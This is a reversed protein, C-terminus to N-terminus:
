ALEPRISTEDCRPVHSRGSRCRAFAPPRGPPPVAALPAPNEAFNRAESTLASGAHDRHRATTSVDKVSQFFFETSLCPIGLALAALYKPTSCYRDSLLFIEDIDAFADTAFRVVPPANADKAARVEFLDEWEIQTAGYEEVKPQGRGEKLREAKTVIFATRSFILTSSDQIELGRALVPQPAKCLKPSEGRKASSSDFANFEAATPRRADFQAGCYGAVFLSKLPLRHREGDHDEVTIIDAPELPREEAGDRDQGENDDTQGRTREVEVVILDRDLDTLGDREKGYYRVRDGQALQCYRLEAAGLKGTNGDDFKVSFSGASAAHITGSYFCQDDRWLGFVRKFPATDPLRRINPKVDVSADRGASEARAPVSRRRSSGAHPAEEADPSAPRRAKASGTTSRRKPEAKAKGKKAPAAIEKTPVSGRTSGRRAPSAKKPSSAAGRSRAPSPPPIDLEFTTTSRAKRKKKPAPLAYEPELDSSTADVARRKGKDPSVSKKTVPPAPPPSRRESASRRRRTKGNEATPVDDYNTEEPEAATGASPGALFDVADVSETAAVSRAKGKGKGKGKATALVHRPSGLPSLDDELEDAMDTAAKVGLRSPGAVPPSAGESDPVIQASLTSSPRASASRRMKKVLPVDPSSDPATPAHQTAQAVTSVDVNVLPQRSTSEDADGFRQTDTVEEIQATGDRIPSPPPAKRKLARGAPPAVPPTKERQDETSDAVQFSAHWRKSDVHPCVITLVNGSSCM